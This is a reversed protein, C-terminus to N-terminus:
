AFATWIMNIKLSWLLLYPATLSSSNSRASSTSQDGQSFCALVCIAIIHRHCHPSFYFSSLVVIVLPEKWSHQCKFAWYCVNEQRINPICYLWLKETPYQAAGTFCLGQLAEEWRTTHTHTHTIRPCPGYSIHSQLNITWHEQGPFRRGRLWRM